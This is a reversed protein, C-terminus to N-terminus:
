NEKNNEGPENRANNANNSDEGHVSRLTEAATLFYATQVTYNMVLSMLADIVAGSTRVRGLLSSKEIHSEIIPVIDEVIKGALRDHEMRAEKSTVPGDPNLENREKADFPAHSWGFRQRVKFSTATMMIGIGDVFSVDRLFPLDLLAVSKGQWRDLIDEMCLRFIRDINENSADEGQEILIRAIDELNRRRRQRKVEDDFQEQIARAADHDEKHGSMYALLSVWSARQDTYSKAENV